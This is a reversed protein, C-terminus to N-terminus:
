PSMARHDFSFVRTIRWEGNTRKWVHVFKAETQGFRHVGMQIAGYDKIPYVRLSGEVLTRTGGNDRPCFQFADRAAQGKKLGTIDHYFELDDTFFSNTKQADCKVFFADFLLSDLRALEDFLAGGTSSDLQVSETRNGDPPARAGDLKGEPSVLSVMTARDREVTFTVVFAKAAEPRFVDGGQSLMRTPANDDIQGMLSGKEEFIRLSMSRPSPGQLPIAYSGVYRQMDSAALPLDRIATTPSTGNGPAAQGQLQTHGAFMVVLAGPIFRSRIFSAARM